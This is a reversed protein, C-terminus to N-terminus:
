EYNPKDPKDVSSEDNFEITNYTIVDNIVERVDDIDMGMVGYDYDTGTRKEDLVYHEMVFETLIETIDECDVMGYLLNVLNQKKNESTIM